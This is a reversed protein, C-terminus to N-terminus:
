PASVYGSRNFSTVLPYGALDDPNLPDGKGDNPEGVKPSQFLPISTKINLDIALMTLNKNDTPVRMAPVEPTEIRAPWHHDMGCFRISCSFGRTTFADIYLLFQAAIARATPEDHAFIVLQARLTAALTRLKFAREKSDCAFTFYQPESIQRTYDRGTPTHDQALAVLIVPLKAPRTTASSDDTDNRQWSDLMEEAADVMRGPAWAMAKELGRSAFESMGRTTPTIGQYFRGLYEAFAIKVPEFM